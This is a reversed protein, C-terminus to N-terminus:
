DDTGTNKYPLKFEVSTGAIEDNPGLVDNIIIGENYSSHSNLYFLRDKTIQIGFSKQLDNAQKLEASRKRGIGNDEIIIQLYHEDLKKVRIKILGVKNTNTFGHKISNELFPQLMMVPISGNEIDVEEDILFTYNFKDGFRMKEMDLYLGLYELEDKLMVEPNESILLMKRLLKAFKSLYNEAQDLRKQEVSNRISSLCNFIFHPNMQVRLAKLELEQMKQMVQEERRINQLKNLKKQVRIRLFIIFGILLTLISIIIFIFQLLRSNSLAISKIDSDKKLLQYEQNLRETEYKVSLENALKMRETKNITDNWNIIQQSYYFAKQYEKKKEYLDSLAKYINIRTVVSGSKEVAYKGMILYNEADLLDNNKLRKDGLEFYAQALTEQDNFDILLPIAKKLLIEASDLKNNASFISAINVYNSTILVTDKYEIGIQLSQKFYELAKETQGQNEYLVGLHSIIIGPNKRDNQIKFNELAKLYYEETKKYNKLDFFANGISLLITTKYNPKGIIEEVQLALFLVKMSNAIDGKIQYAMGQYALSKSLDEFDNIEYSARSAQQAFYLSSDIDVDFYYAFQDLYKQITTHKDAPYTQSFNKCPLLFAFCLVLFYKAFINVEQGSM